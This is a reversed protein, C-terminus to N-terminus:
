REQGVLNASQLRYPPFTVAMAALTMGGGRTPTRIVGREAALAMVPRRTGHRALPVARPVLVHSRTLQLANNSPPTGV